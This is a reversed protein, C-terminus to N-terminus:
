SQRTGKIIQLFYDFVKQIIPFIFIALMVGVMDALLDMPDAMRSSTLAGQLIETLIGFCFLTIIPYLLITKKNNAYFYELYFTTTLCFFIGFHILKDLHPIPISIDPVSDGPMLLGYLIILTVIFTFKYNLFKKM